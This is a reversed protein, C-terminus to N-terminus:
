DNLAKNWDNVDFIFLNMSDCHSSDTQEWDEGLKREFVNILNQTPIYQIQFSDNFMVIVTQFMTLVDLHDAAFSLFEHYTLNIHM